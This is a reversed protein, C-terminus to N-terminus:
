ETMDLEKPGWQSYQLRGPKETWPTRWALISSHTVMEKELPNEWIPPLHKLRQAVLSTQSITLTIRNLSNFKLYVDVDYLIKFRYTFTKGQYIITLLLQTFDM